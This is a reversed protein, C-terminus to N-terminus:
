RVMPMVVGVAKGESVIVVPERAGKMRLRLSSSFLTRLYDVYTASLLVGTPAQYTQPRNGRELDDLRVEDPLDANLYGAIIAGAEPGLQVSPLQSPKALAADLTIAGDSVFVRGDALQFM